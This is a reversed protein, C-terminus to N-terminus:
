KQYCTKDMECIATSINIDKKNILTQTCKQLAKALTTKQTASRGDLIKVELHVFGQYNPDLRYDEYSQARVKIAEPRFLGSDIMTSRLSDMLTDVDIHLSASYEIILHPM